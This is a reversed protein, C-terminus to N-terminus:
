RRTCKRLNIIGEYLLTGLLRFKVLGISRTKDMINM